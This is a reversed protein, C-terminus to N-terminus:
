DGATRIFGLLAQSLGGDVVVEQGTVYGSRPSAFWLVADAVDEPRGINGMPVLNERSSKISPDSYSADSLPTWILGPAVANSRVGCSAWELALQRSLMSVAAKSPSYAGALPNPEVGCISSVHVVSGSNRAVMDRGFERACLLYGTLNVDLIRQWDVLTTDLLSGKGVIGANNVLVDAPGFVDRLAQGAAAVHEVDATDCVHYIADGGLGTILEATGSAGEANLDMVLIRAGGRALEVAVSRGIGGGSGTVVAVKGDLRLWDNSAM